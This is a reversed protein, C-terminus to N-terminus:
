NEGKNILISLAQEFKLGYWYKEKEDLTLEISKTVFDAAINLAKEFDKSIVYKGIFASAFLDGTGYFHGQTKKRFVQTIKGNESAVAGCTKEDYGV